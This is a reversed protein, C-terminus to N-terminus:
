LVDLPPWVSLGPSWPLGSWRGGQPSGPTAQPYIGPPGSSPPGYECLFALGRQASFSGADAWLQNVCCGPAPRSLPTKRVAAPSVPVRPRRPQTDGPAGPAECGGERWRRGM